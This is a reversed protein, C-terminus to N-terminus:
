CRTASTRSRSRSRRRGAVAVTQSKPNKVIAIAPQPVPTVTLPECAGPHAPYNADGRYDAQYSINATPAFDASVATSPDGPTLAVSQDTPAGTCDVTTYRHFVVHGTPNPVAAPTGARRSPVQDHVVTGAQVTTVVANSANLIDTRATDDGWNKTADRQRRGERRGDRPAADRRRRVRRDHGARHDHRDDHSTIQGHLLGDDRRDHLQDRRRRLQGARERHLVSITTGAPANVFAGGHRHERERPRDAHPEHRGPQEGDAPTIQINADVFTKVADGSNPAAGDTAVTFPASGAVSLTTTAHGDRDRGLEVPVHDHM